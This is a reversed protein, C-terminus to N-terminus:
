LTHVCVCVCVCEGGRKGRLRPSIMPMQFEWVETPLMRPVMIGDNQASQSLTSSWHPQDNM